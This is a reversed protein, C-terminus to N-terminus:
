PGGKSASVEAAGQLVEWERRLISMRIVDWYRGDQYYDERFRGEEV